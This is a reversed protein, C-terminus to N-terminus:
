GRDYAHPPRQVRYLQKQHFLANSSQSVAIQRYICLEYLVIRLQNTGMRLTNYKDGDCVVNYEYIHVEKAALVHPSYFSYFM